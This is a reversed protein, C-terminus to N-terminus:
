VLGFWSGQVHFETGSRAIPYDCLRSAVGVVIVNGDFEACIAYCLCKGFAHEVGRGNGVNAANPGLAGREKSMSNAFLGNRGNVDVM